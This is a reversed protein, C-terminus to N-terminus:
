KEVTTKERVVQTFRRSQGATVLLSTRQEGESNLLAGTHADVYLMTSGITEGKLLIRHQGDSGEGASSTRETREIIIAATGNMEGEGLVRSNRISTVSIPVLGNCTKTTVSDTWATASTLQPPVVVVRRQISGLTSYVLDTCDPQNDPVRGNLEDITMRGDSIHGTFSVPLVPKRDASGIRNGALNSIETISGLYATSGSNTATLLTFRTQQAVTDRTIGSDSSSEITAIVTSVYRTPQNAPVLTWSTIRGRPPVEAANASVPTPETAPVPSSGRSACAALVFAIVFLGITKRSPLM